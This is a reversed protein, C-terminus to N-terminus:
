SGAASAELTYKVPPGSTPPLPFGFRESLDRLQDATLPFVAALLESQNDLGVLTRFYEPDPDPLPIDAVLDETEQDFGLIDFKVLHGQVEVADTV